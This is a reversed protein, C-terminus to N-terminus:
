LYGFIYKYIFKHYGKQQHYIDKRFVLYYDELQKVEIDTIIHQSFKAKYALTEMDQDVEGGFRLIRQMRQYYAIVKHNNDLKKTKIFFIRLTLLRYIVIFIVISIIMIIMNQYDKIMKFIDSQQNQNTQNSQNDNAVPNTQPSTRGTESLEDIMHSVSQATSQTVTALQVSPTMEYPIWGVGKKYVEIWAHSRNTKIEAKEDVFDNEKIVYGKVFRTPVDLCRLLLAASSAYHTCSGKKNQLLFYEVFDQDKPLVGSDLDYKTNQSLISQILKAKKEINNSNFLEGFSEDKLNEQIYSVLKEKLRVPVDMYQEEVYKDYGSEIANITSYKFLTQEDIPYVAIKLDTRDYYSDDNLYRSDDVRYYPVFQYNTKKVSNVSFEYYSQSFGLQKIVTEDLLSRRPANSHVESVSHWENQQYNALSYGRLYGGFPKSAIVTLALQNNFTVSDDPLSGDIYSSTGAVNRGLKSGSIFSSDVWNQIQSLVDTTRQNFLPNSELFVSSFLIFFVLCPIMILQLHFDHQKTKLCYTFIFHYAFFILFCYSTYAYLSHRILLPFLFIFLLLMMKFLTRKGNYLSVILYTMPIAIILAFAVPVYTDILRANTFLEDFMLFYDNEVVAIFQGLLSVLSDFYPLLVAVSIVLFGISVKCIRGIEKRMMQNYLYCGFVVLIVVAFIAKKSFYLSHFIGGTVGVIGVILMLYDIFISTKIDKM